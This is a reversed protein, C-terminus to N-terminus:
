DGGGLGTDKALLGGGRGGTALRVELARHAADNLGLVASGIPVIALLLSCCADLAIRKAIKTMATGRMTNAIRMRVVLPPSWLSAVAAGNPSPPM